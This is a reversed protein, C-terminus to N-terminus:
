RFVFGVLKIKKGVDPLTVYFVGNDEIKFDSDTAVNVRAIENYNIDYGVLDTKDPDFKLKIKGHILLDGYKDCELPATLIAFEPTINPDAEAERDMEARLGPPAKTIPGSYDESDKHHVRGHAHGMTPSGMTAAMAAAMGVNKAGRKVGKWNIKEEISNDELLYLEIDECIDM